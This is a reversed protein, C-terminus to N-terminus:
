FHSIEYKGTPGAQVARLFVTMGANIAEGAAHIRPVEGGGRVTDRFSLILRVKRMRAESEETYDVLAEIHRQQAGHRFRVRFPLKDHHSGDDLDIRAGQRAIWINM